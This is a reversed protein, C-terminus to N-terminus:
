QQLGRKRREESLIAAFNVIPHVTVSVQNFAEFGGVQPTFTQGATMDATFSFSYGRLANVRAIGLISAGIIYPSEKLYLQIHNNSPYSVHVPGAWVPDWTSVTVSSPRSLDVYRKMAEQQAALENLGRDQIRNWQTNKEILDSQVKDLQDKQQRWKELADDATEQAAVAKTDAKAAAAGASAAQQSVAGITKAMQRKEQAIQQLLQDNHSRLAESDEIMAGGVHWRWGVSTTGDSIMEWRTIPLPLIRGWILVDVIDGRKIDIGPRYRGTGSDTIDREFFIDGETRLQAAEIQTELDSTQATLDVTADARVFSVDFRGAAPKDPRYIYGNQLRKEVDAQERGEPLRVDFSGYVYTAQRRGVTMTGGDAVLLPKGM